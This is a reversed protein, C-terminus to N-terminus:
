CTLRVIESSAGNLLFYGGVQWWADLGCISAPLSLSQFAPAIEFHMNSHAVSTLASILASLYLLKSSMQITHLLSPPRPPPGRGPLSNLYTPPPAAFGPVNEVRFVLQSDQEFSRRNSAEIKALIKFISTSHRSNSLPGCHDRPNWLIM